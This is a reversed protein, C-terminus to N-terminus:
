GEALASLVAMRVAVGATVQRRVLAREGDAVEGDMEVGRNMPGPHMLAVGAPLREARELTIGYRRRYAAPDPLEEGAAFRERQIRLAMVGDAGELAADLDSTMAAGPYEDGAPLLYAPGCLTVTAGLATLGYFNSRVVRSHAVDGVMVLHRGAFGGWFRRLTVLDLLGQTPHENAGDGANIIHVGDLAEALRAPAGAEPHRVVLANVGMAALVHGTDILTEGKELSLRAGEITLRELGLRQEALEFSCRTRTSPELFLNAVSLRSAGGPDVGHGGNGPRSAVDWFAEARDLLDTLEAASLGALGLLDKRRFAGPM